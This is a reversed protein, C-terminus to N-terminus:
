AEEDIKSLYVRLAKYAELATPYLGGAARGGLDESIRSDFKFWQWMLVGDDSYVSGISYDEIMAETEALTEAMERWQLLETHEAALIDLLRCVELSTIAFGLDFRTRIGMVIVSDVITM